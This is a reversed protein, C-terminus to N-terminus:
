ASWVSAMSLFNKIDSSRRSPLLFIILFFLAFFEGMAAAVTQIFYFQLTFKKEALSM